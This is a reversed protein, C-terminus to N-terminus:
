ANTEAKPYQACGYEKRAGSYEPDKGYGEDPDCAWCYGRILEHIAHTVPLENEYIQVGGAWASELAYCDLEDLTVITFALTPYQKALNNLAEIPPSWATDMSYVLERDARSVVSAGDDSIEWKTGWNRVNWEYWGMGTAIQEQIEALIDRDPTMSELANRVKEMMQEANIAPEVPTDDSPEVPKSRERIREQNSEREYYADLDIPRIANWLLFVGTQEVYDIKNDRFNYHETDYPRAMQAQLEDLSEKDGTITLISSAWNPM